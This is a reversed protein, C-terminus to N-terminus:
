VRKDKWTFRHRGKGAEEKTKGGGSTGQGGEGDHGRRALAQYAACARKHRGMAGPDHTVDNGCGDCTWRKKNHVCDIHKKLDSPTTAEHGCKPCAHKKGEHVSSIHIV